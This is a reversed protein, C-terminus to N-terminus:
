TKLVISLVIAVIGVFTSIAFLLLMQQSTKQTAAQFNSVQARSVGANEGGGTDLRTRMDALKDNMAAFSTSSLTAQADIQKQTAVESKAIAQANAKNQESVAEKAAALAADLSIRSEQAAQETRTDREEFRQGVANFKQDTVDNVRRIEGLIYERSAAIDRRLEEKAASVAAATLATPDPIPVNGGHSQEDKHWNGNPEEAM